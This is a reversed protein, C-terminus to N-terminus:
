KRGRMRDAARRAKALDQERHPFYVSSAHFAIFFGWGLMPWFFWFPGPEFLDIVLLMATVILYSRLHNLFKRQRRTAIGTLAEEVLREYEEEQIAQEVEYETLGAEKAAEMLDKKTFDGSHARRKMARHLIGSVEEESFRRPSM